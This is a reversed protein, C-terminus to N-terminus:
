AITVRCGLNRLVTEAEAERSERRGACRCRKEASQIVSTYVSPATCFVHVSSSYTSSMCSIPTTALSCSSTREPSAWSSCYAFPQRALM